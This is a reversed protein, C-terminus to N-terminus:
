RFPSTKDKYIIDLINEVTKHVDCRRTIGTTQQAKQVDSALDMHEQHVAYFTGKKTHYSALYEQEIQGPTPTMLAKTNLIALDMITSYGSRSIILQARNMLEERKQKSLYSYIKVNDCDSKEQAETKGLTVVISGSLDPLQSLIKKELMSRQPEPGSLSVLYNIDKKTRQKNFDSLVGVYHLKNEDIKKLNHSLDGSLDDTTYDPIIIGRFRKFFFLNFTESGRELVRMRLPNMIRPQHTIFYSPISRSYMDYRADSIIRDCPTHELIKKLYRFGHHISKIFTPWYIMSKAMFQRANNSLLMPYDPLDIYSAADGLEEKLLHLSRGHTIITLTHNETLLKRIVPLSRTAHGLGWSCIGYFIHM